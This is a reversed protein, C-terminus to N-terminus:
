PAFVGFGDSPRPYYHHDAAHIIEWILERFTQLGETRAAAHELWEIDTYYVM